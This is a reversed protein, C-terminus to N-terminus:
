KITRGKLKKVKFKDNVFNGYVIVNPKFPSWYKIVINIHKSLHPTRKVMTWERHSDNLPTSYYAESQAYLEILNEIEYTISISINNVEKSSIEIRFTNDDCYIAKGKILKLKTPCQSKRKTKISKHKTVRVLEM